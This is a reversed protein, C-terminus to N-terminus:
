TNYRLWTVTAFILAIILILGIVALLPTWKPRPKGANRPQNTTPHPHEDNTDHMDDAM